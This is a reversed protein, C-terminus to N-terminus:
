KRRNLEAGTKVPVAGVGKLMCAVQRQERNQNGEEKGEEKRREKKRGEKYYM